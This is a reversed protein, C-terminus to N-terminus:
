RRSSKRRKEKIIPRRSRVQAGPWEFSLGCGGAEGQHKVSIKDILHLHFYPTAGELVKRFLCHARARQKKKLCAM